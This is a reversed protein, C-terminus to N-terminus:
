LLPLSCQSNSPAVLAVPNGPPLTTFFRGALAASAPKIAPVPLNGPSPFPLGSCYKQKSIGHISSDPLSYDITDWLTPCLKTVLCFLFYVFISFILRFKM